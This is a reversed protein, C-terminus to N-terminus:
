PRRPRCRFGSRCAVGRLRCTASLNGCRGVAARLCCTASSDWRRGVAARLCCTASWDGVAGWRRACAARRRCTGCTSWWWTRAARRRCTRGVRWRRAWSVSCRCTGAAGWRRACAARRSGLRDLPPEPRRYAGAATGSWEEASGLREMAVMAPFIRQIREAQEPYRRVYDSLSPREGRRYRVAFEKALDVLPDAESDMDNM